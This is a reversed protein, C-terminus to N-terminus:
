SGSDPKPSESKNFPGLISMPTGATLKWAIRIGVFLIVLGIIGHLPDQLELFPSALGVLALMGLAAGFGMKPKRTPTSQASAASGAAASNASEDPEAVSAATGPQTAQDGTAAMGTPAAHKVISEKQAKQQKAYQSISIPVAAISVAAYTLLVAAIQYRRGGVGNSGKMM